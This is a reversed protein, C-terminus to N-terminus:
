TEVPAMLKLPQAPCEKMQEEGEVHAVQYYSGLASWATVWAYRPRPISLVHAARDAALSSLYSAAGLYNM